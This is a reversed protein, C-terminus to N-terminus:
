KAAAQNKQKLTEILGEIGSQNVIPAFQTRYNEVMWIGEVDVDIIRWWIGPRICTNAHM